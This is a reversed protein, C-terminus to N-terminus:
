FMEGGSFVGGFESFGSLIPSSLGHRKTGGRLNELVYEDM